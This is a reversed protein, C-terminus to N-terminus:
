QRKQRCQLSGIMLGKIGHMMQWSLHGIHMIFQTPPIIVLSAWITATTFTFLCVLSSQIFLQKQFKSKGTQVHKLKISNIIYILIYVVCIGICLSMNNITQYISSFTNENGPILPNYIWTGFVPSFLVPPTWLYLFGYCLGLLVIFWCRNGGFITEGIHPKWFDFFRNCVLLFCLACCSNFIVDVAVGCLFMVNPFMCYWAGVVLFYGTLECSIIICLSDLIGLTFMFKYCSMSLFEKDKIVSLALCYAIQAAIGYLIYFIGSLTAPEGKHALLDTVNECSYLPSRRLSGYELYVQM